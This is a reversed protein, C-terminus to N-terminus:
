RPTARKRQIETFLKEAREMVRQKADPFKDGFQEMLLAELLQEAYREEPRESTEPIRFRLVGRLERFKIQEEPTRESKGLLERYEEIKEETRWDLTTNLDFLGGTLIQDARGVLWEPDTPLSAVRGEEDQVFRLVQKPEMGAVILSSHTTAVFQVNPFLNRLTRVILRQWTPHMHADIEDMLVLAPQELLSSPNDTTAFQQKDLTASYFDNLRRLLVGVWGLLSQTGQSLLEIRVR